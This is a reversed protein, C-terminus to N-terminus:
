TEQTPPLFGRFGGSDAVTYPQTSTIHIKIQDVLSIISQKVIKTILIYCVHLNQLSFKDTSLIVHLTKSCSLGRVISMDYCKNHQINM